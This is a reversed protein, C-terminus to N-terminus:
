ITLLCQVNREKLASKLAPYSSLLERFKPEWPQETIAAQLVGALDRHIAELQNSEELERQLEYRLQQPNGCLKGQLRTLDLLIESVGHALRRRGRGSELTPAKPQARRSVPPEAPTTPRIETRKPMQAQGAMAAGVMTPFIHAAKGSKSKATQQEYAALLGEDPVIGTEESLALYNQAIQM